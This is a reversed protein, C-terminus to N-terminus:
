QAVAADIADALGAGHVRIAWAGRAPSSPDAEAAVAIRAGHGAIAHAAVTRVAKAQVWSAACARHMVRAEGLVALHVNARVAGGVGIALEGRRRDALEHIAHVPGRCAPALGWSVAVGRVRVLTLVPVEAAGPEWGFALSM